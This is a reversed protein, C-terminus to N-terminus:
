AVCVWVMQIRQILEACLFMLSMKRLAAADQEVAPPEASLRRPVPLTAPSHPLAPFQYMAILTLGSGRDQERLVDNVDESAQERFIGLKVIVVPPRMMNLVALDAQARNLIGFFVGVPFEYATM